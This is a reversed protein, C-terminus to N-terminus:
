RHAEQKETKDENKLVHHECGRFTNAVAASIYTCYRQKLPKVVMLLANLNGLVTVTNM